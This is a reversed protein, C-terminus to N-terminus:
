WQYHHYRASGIAQNQLLSSIKKQKEHDSFTFLHFFFYKLACQTLQYLWWLGIGDHVIGIVMVWGNDSHWYTTVMVIVMVTALPWRVCWSWQDNILVLGLTLRSALACIINSSMINIIVILVLRCCQVKWFVLKLM